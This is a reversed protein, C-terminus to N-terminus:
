AAALVPLALSARAAQLAAERNADSRALGEARVFRPTDIGIFGFVHRLYREQFDAASDDGYAGGRTSAIIVQRGGALGQPGHETYRFTRGAVLIRDIWARLTSPIGFNYMPAGIVVLESSLFEDLLSEGLALQAADTGSLTAATLHPLPEADLDRYRLTLGPHAARLGAVIAATLSRSASAEGLASSDIQLLQM